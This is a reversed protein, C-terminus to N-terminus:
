GAEVTRDQGTKEQGTKEQGDSRATLGRCVAGEGELRWRYEVRRDEREKYMM